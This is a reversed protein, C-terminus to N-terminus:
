IPSAAWSAHPVWSSPATRVTPPGDCAYPLDGPAFRDDDSEVDAPDHLKNKLDQYPVVDHSGLIVLYDPRHKMVVKDIAAKNEAPDATDTVRATGLSPGDLYVIRTALGRAKDAKILVKLAEAIAAMGKAGYKRRLATRNTVVTKSSLPHNAPM